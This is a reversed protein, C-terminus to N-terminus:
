SASRSAPSEAASARQLRVAAGAAALALVAGAVVWALETGQAAALAGMGLNAFLSGGQSSLAEASILTARAAHGVADNLLELHMPESAGLAFYGALYVAVFGLSTGPAGLLSVFLAAAIVTLLYARVLGLRRAAVPSLAAGLAVALMSGAVLGGFAAGHTDASGILDELRPQWLLEVAALTVGFATGVVFVVQVTPSGSIERRATALVERTRRRIARTERPGTQRPEHVLLAVAALYVVATGAAALAAATYGALAVLAGGALAGLAMAVGEAATGRSLGSALAAVPDLLRLSDVYWAELSGSILARGAALLGIAAAFAAVDAAVAFVLLSASTLAAGGLMVLRRGVVDALVGSPVELTLAVASHVALVVGIEGLSLGRAQPVVVLFPLVVGVPLWRLARLLMFHGTLRGASM